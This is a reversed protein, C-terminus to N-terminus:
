DAEEIEIAEADDVDNWGLVIDCAKQEAEDESGAYITLEKQRTTTYEVTVIYKM